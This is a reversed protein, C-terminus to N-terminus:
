IFFHVSYSAEFSSARAMQRRFPRDASAAFGVRRRRCASDGYPTKRHREGGTRGYGTRVTSGDGSAAPIGGGGSGVSVLAICGGISAGISLAFPAHSNRPTTREPADKYRRSSPTAVSPLRSRCRAVGVPSAAVGGRGRRAEGCRGRAAIRRFACAGACIRACM